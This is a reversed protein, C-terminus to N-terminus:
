LYCESLWDEELSSRVCFSYACHEDYPPNSEARGSTSSSCTQLTYRVYGIFLMTTLETCREKKENVLFMQLLYTKEIQGVMSRWLSVQYYEFFTAPSVIQLLSGVM